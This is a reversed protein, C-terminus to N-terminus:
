YDGCLRISGNPKVVPVVATAWESVEVKKLVRRKEQHDLEAKLKLALPLPHARCFKPTVESKLHL